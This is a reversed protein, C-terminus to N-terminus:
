ASTWRRAEAKQVANALAAGALERDSLFALEYPMEDGIERTKWGMDHSDDSAEMGTKNWYYAIAADLYAADDPSFFHQYAPVMAFVRQEVVEPTIENRDIEILKEQEMQRLLPRMEVPAPGHELKQYSRGTVPVKREAFATFDARWIIKNLKILGFRPADKSKDSVYLIAEALRKQGGALHVKYTLFKPKYEQGQTM